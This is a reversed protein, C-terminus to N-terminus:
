APVFTQLIYDLLETVTTVGLDATILLEELDDLLEEDIEKKGLFIADMQHVLSNRTSSLKETLRKFLNPSSSTAKENTVDTIADEPIDSLQETSIEVDKTDPPTDGFIGTGQPTGTEEAPYKKETSDKAPIVEDLKEALHNFEEAITKIDSRSDHRSFLSISSSTNAIRRKFNEIMIKPNSILLVCGKRVGLM